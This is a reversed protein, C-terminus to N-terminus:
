RKSPVPGQRFVNLFKGSQSSPTSNALMKCHMPSNRGVGLLSRISKLHRPMLVATHSCRVRAGDHHEGTGPGREGGFPHASGPCERLPHASGPGAHMRWANGRASQLSVRSLASGKFASCGSSKECKLACLIDCNPLGSISGTGSVAAHPARATDFQAGDGPPGLVEGRPQGM